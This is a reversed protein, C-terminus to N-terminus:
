QDRLIIEGKINDGRVELKITAIKELTPFLGEMKASLDIRGSSTAVDFLPKPDKVELSFNEASSSEWNLFSSATALQYHTQPLSSSLNPVGNNYFVLSKPTVRLNLTLPLSQSLKNLTNQDLGIGVGNLWASQSSINQAFLNMNQKDKEEINFKLKLKQNDVFILVTSRKIIGAQVLLDESRKLIIPYNLLFFLLSLFIVLFSITILATKKLSIKKFKPFKKM